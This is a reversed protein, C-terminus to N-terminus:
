LERQAAESNGGAEGAVTALFLKQEDTLDPYVLGGAKPNDSTTNKMHVGADQGGNEYSLPRYAAGRSPLTAGDLTPWHVMKQADALINSEKGRLSPEYGLAKMRRLYEEERSGM